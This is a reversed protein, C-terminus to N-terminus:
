GQRGHTLTLRGFFPTRADQLELRAPGVGTIVGVVVVAAAMMMMMVVSPATASSLQRFCQDHVHHTKGTGTIWIINTGYCCSGVITTAATATVAAVAATVRPQWVKV